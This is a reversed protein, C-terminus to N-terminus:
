ANAAARMRVDDADCKNVDSGSWQRRAEDYALLPTSSTALIAHQVDAKATSTPSTAAAGRISAEVECEEAITGAQAALCSSDRMILRINRVDVLMVRSAAM